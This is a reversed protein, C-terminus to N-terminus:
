STTKSGGFYPKALGEAILTTAVADFDANTANNNHLQALKALCRGYKDFKGLQAALLVAQKQLARTDATHPALLQMLRTKARQGEATALEPTDIGEIRVVLKRLDGNVDLVIHCTDGDHVDALRVVHQQGQFSFKPVQDCNCALLKEHAMTEHAM